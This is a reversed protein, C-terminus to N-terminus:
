FKCNFFHQSSAWYILNIERKRYGTKSQFIIFINTKVTGLVIM